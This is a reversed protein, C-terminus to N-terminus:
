SNDGCAPGCSCNCSCNCDCSCDCSCPCPCDCACDCSCACNCSCSNEGSNCVDCVSNKFKANLYANRIANIRAATILDNKVVPDFAADEFGSLKQQIENYNNAYFVGNSQVQTASGKSGQSSKEGVKEAEELKKILSNWNVATIVDKIFDIKPKVEKWPFDGVNPHSKILQYGVECITQCSYDCVNCGSCGGNDRDSCSEGNYCSDCSPSNPISM